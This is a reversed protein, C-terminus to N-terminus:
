GLGLAPIPVKHGPLHQIRTAVRITEKQRQIKRGSIQNDDTDLFGEEEKEEEEEQQQEVM